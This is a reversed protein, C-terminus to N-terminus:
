GGRTVLAVWGNFNTELAIDCQIGLGHLRESITLVWMRTPLHGLLRGHCPIGALRSKSFERKGRPLHM